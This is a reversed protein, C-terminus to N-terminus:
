RGDRYWTSLRVGRPVDLDRQPGLALGSSALVAEPSRQPVQPFVARGFPLRLGALRSLHFVDYRPLFLGFVETGGLIAVSGQRIGLMEAANELSLGAPNWLLAHSYNLAPGITEISRTAILRRRQPSRTQNEHSNRGHVIVAAQDLRDSLFKQDAEIVLTSPMVGSADALMGDESVIAFGEVRLMIAIISRFKHKSIALLL